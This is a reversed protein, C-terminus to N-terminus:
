STHRRAAQAAAQVTAIQFGHLVARTRDARDRRAAYDAQAHHFEAMKAHAKTEAPGFAKDYLIGAVGQQGFATGVIPALHTGAIHDIGQAAVGVAARLPNGFWASPDFSTLAGRAAGRGPKASDETAGKYAAYGTWVPWLGRAAVKMGEGAIKAAMSTGLQSSIAEAAVSAPAMAVRKLTAVSPLHRELAPAIASYTTQFRTLSILDRPSNGLALYPAVDTVAHPIGGLMRPGFYNFSARNTFNTVVRGRRTIVAESHGAGPSVYKLNTKNGKGQTHYISEAPSLKTWTKKVTAVDPVRNFANRGYHAAVGAAVAGGVAANRKRARAM